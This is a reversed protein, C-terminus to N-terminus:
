MIYMCQMLRDLENSIDKIDAVEKVENNVFVKQVTM